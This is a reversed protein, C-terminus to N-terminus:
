QQFTGLYGEIQDFLTRDIDLELELLSLPLGFGVMKVYDKYTVLLSTAQHVRLIEELEERVYYHHDQFLYKAVVNPLYPDLRQPRAIACVLVMKPTQDRLVTRRVFAHGEKVHLVKKGSWHRERYAGSPLCFTNPTEVDILIDLKEIGHKSYGDDLFLIECGLAIAAEIGKIRDESVIVVAHAVKHAYIMAEDGSIHVDCLTQAGDHVVVLGQSRRGYGRLVIAPRTHAQALACVLPTKGSGGVTLNGVSIIPIDFKKPTSLRYKLYVVTCYLASLPLLLYSLLRQLPSPAYLYREIWAVM